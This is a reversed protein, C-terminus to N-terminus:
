VRIVTYAMVVQKHLSPVYHMDTDVNIYSAYVHVVCITNTLLRCRDLVKRVVTHHKVEVCGLCSFMGISTLRVICSKKQKFLWKYSASSLM